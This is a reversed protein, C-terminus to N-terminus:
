CASYGKHRLEASPASHGISGAVIFLKVAIASVDGQHSNFSIKSDLRQLKNSSRAGMSNCSHIGPRWNGFSNCLSSWTVPCWSLLRLLPHCAWNYFILEILRLSAHLRIMMPESWQYGFWHQFIILQVRLHFKLWMRTMCKMWSLANLVTMQSIAAM